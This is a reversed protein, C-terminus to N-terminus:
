YIINIEVFVKKGHQYVKIKLINARIWAGNKDVESRKIEISLDEWLFSM